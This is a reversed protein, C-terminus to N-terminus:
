KKDVYKYYNMFFYKDIYKPKCLRLKQNCFLFGDFFRRNKHNNITTIKRREQSSNTSSHQLVSLCAWLL